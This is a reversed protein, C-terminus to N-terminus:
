APDLQRIDFSVIASDSGSSVYIPKDATLNDISKSNYNFAKINFKNRASELTPLSQIDFYIGVDTGVETTKIPLIGEVSKLGFLTRTSLYSQAVKKQAETYPVVSRRAVNVDPLADINFFLNFIGPSSQEDDIPLVTFISTIDDTDEATAAINSLRWTWPGKYIDPNIHIYTRGHKELYRGNTEQTM